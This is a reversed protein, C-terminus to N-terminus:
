TCLATDVSGRAAQPTILAHVQKAALNANQANAPNSAAQQAAAVFNNNNGATTTTTPTTTTASADPTFVTNTGAQTLRRSSHASYPLCAM